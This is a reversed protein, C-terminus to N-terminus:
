AKAAVQRRRWAGFGILAAAAAAGVVTSGEPIPLQPGNDRIDLITAIYLVEQSDPDTQTVYYRSGVAALDTTVLYSIYATQDALLSFDWGFAVAVDNPQPLTTAGVKFVSNDLSNAAFNGYIDGPGDPPGAFGPEDIEYSLGTPLPVPGIAGSENFFSNQAPSLELDLYLYSKKAGAGTVQVSISGLGTTGDFGAENATGDTNLLKETLSPAGFAPLGALLCLTTGTIAFHIRSKNM